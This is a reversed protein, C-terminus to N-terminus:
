KYYCYDSAVAECEAGVVLLSCWGTSKKNLIGYWGRAGALWAGGRWLFTINKDWRRAEALGRGMLGMGGM